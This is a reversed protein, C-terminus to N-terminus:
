MKSVFSYIAVEFLMIYVIYMCMRCYELRKVRERALRENDRIDLEDKFVTLAKSSNSIGEILNKILICMRQVDDIDYSYKLNDLAIKESLACDTIFSECLRTMEPGAVALYRQAPEALNVGKGETKNLMYYFKSYLQGFEKSIKKNEERLKADIFYNPIKHVLPYLLLLVGYGLNFVCQVCCLIIYIYTIYAKLVIIFEERLELGFVRWDLRRAYIKITSMEIESIRLIGLSENLDYLVTILKDLRDRNKLTKAEKSMAKAMSKLHTQM